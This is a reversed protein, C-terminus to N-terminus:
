HVVESSHGFLKLFPSNFYQPTMPGGKMWQVRYSHHSLCIHARHPFLSRPRDELALIRISYRRTLKELFASEGPTLQLHDLIWGDFVQAELLERWLIRWRKRDGCELGLLQIGQEEALKWLVPAYLNWQRSIWIVSRAPKAFQLALRRTGSGQTGILQLLYAKSKLSHPKERFPTLLDDFSTKIINENEKTNKSAGISIDYVM